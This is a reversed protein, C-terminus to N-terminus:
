GDAHDMGYASMRSRLDNMGREILKRAADFTLGMLDAVEQPAFGQLSLEVAVRRRGALGRLGSELCRLRQDIGARQEPGAIPDEYIAPREDEEPLPTTERVKARRVGDVVVSVVTRQIYSAPLVPDQDGSEPGPPQGPRPRSLAKWLRIRVEQEIDDPDLGQDAGCHQEVLSRIRAGFRALLRDIPLPARRQDLTVIGAEPPSPEGAAAKADGAAM